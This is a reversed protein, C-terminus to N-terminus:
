TQKRFHHRTWQLNAESANHIGSLL